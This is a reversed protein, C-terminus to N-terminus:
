TVMRIQWGSFVARRNLGNKVPSAFNFIILRFLRSFAAADTQNLHLTLAVQHTRTCSCYGITHYHHSLILAYSFFALFVQQGYHEPMGMGAQGTGLLFSAGPGRAGGIHRFTLAAARLEPM